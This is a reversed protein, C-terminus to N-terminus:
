KHATPAIRKFEFETISLTERLEAASRILLASIEKWSEMSEAIQKKIDKSDM